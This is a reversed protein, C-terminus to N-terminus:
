KMSPKMIMKRLLYGGDPNLVWVANFGGTVAITDSHIVIKQNYKGTQMVSDKKADITESESSNSLIIIENGFSNLYNRIEGRGTISPQGEQGLEGNEAFMGALSDANMSLLYSDYKKLSSMVDKDVKKSSCSELILISSTVVLLLCLVIFKQYSKFM